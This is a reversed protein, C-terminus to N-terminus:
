QREPAARPAPTAAASEPEAVPQEDLQEPPLSIAIDPATFPTIETFVAPDLHWNRADLGRDSPGSLEHVATSAQPPLGADAGMAANALLSLGIPLLFRQICPNTHM